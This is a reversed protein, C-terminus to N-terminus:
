KLHVRTEIFFKQCSFWNIEIIEIRLVDIDLIRFVWCHLLSALTDILRYKPYGGVEKMVPDLQWVTTRLVDLLGAEDLVDESSIEIGVDVGVWSEAALLAM